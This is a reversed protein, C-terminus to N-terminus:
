MGSLGLSVFLTIKFFFFASFIYQLMGAPGSFINKLFVLLLFFYMGDSGLPFTSYSIFFIDHFFFLCVMKSATM